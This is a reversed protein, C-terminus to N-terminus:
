IGDQLEKLIRDVGEKSDTWACRAGLGELERMKQNQKVTPKRGPAKLEVFAIRGGPLVVLRDPVGANGPSSFKYARGGLHKVRLRLYDEIAKERTQKSSKM